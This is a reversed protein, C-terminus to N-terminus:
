SKDTATVDFITGNKVKVTQGAVLSGDHAHGAANRYAVTILVQPGSPPDDFALAVVEEFSLEHDHVIKERGNVVIRINPGHDPHEDGGRAADEGPEINTSHENVLLRRPQTAEQRVYRHPTVTMITM